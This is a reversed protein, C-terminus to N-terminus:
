RGGGDDSKKKKAEEILRELRVLHFRSARRQKPYYNMSETLFSKAEDWASPKDILLLGLNMMCDGVAEELDRKAQADEPPENRLLSKGRRIALRLTEESEDLDKKLYYIDILATDNSLRVDSPNIRLAKRYNDYSRRLTKMFPGPNRRAGQRECLDRLMLAANNFAEWDNPIRKGIGELIEAGRLENGQRVFTMAYVFAEDRPSRSSLFDKPQDIAPWLEIAGFWTELAKEKKGQAALIAGKANMTEAIRYKSSNEFESNEEM